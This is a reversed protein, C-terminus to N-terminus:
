SETKEKPAPAKQKKPRKADERARIAELTKDSM